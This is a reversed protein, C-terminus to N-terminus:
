KCFNSFKRGSNKFIIQVLLKYSVNSNITKIILFIWSKYHKFYFIGEVSHLGRERAVKTINSYEDQANPNAGAKLLTKIVAARGHVAAVMLPTWGFIHRKNVDVNLNNILRFSM